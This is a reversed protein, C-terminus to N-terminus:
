CCVAYRIMPLTQFTDQMEALGRGTCYAAHLGRDAAKQLDEATRPDITKDSRLLTGDMDLAILKITKKM